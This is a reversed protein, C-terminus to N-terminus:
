RTLQSKIASMGALVKSFRQEILDDRYAPYSDTAMTATCEVARAQFYLRQSRASACNLTTDADTCLQCRLQAVSRRSLCRLIDNCHLQASTVSARVDCRHRELTSLEVQRQAILSQLSQLETRAQADECIGGKNLSAFLARAERDAHDVDDIADKAMKRLVKLSRLAQTIQQAPTAQEGSHNESLSAMNRNEAHLQTRRQRKRPPSPAGKALAQEIALSEVAPTVQMQEIDASKGHAPGEPSSVVQVDTSESQWGELQRLMSSTEKAQMSSVKWHCQQATLLPSRRKPLDQMVKVVTMFTCIMGHQRLQICSEPRVAANLASLDSERSQLEQKKSSVWSAAQQVCDKAQKLECTVDTLKATADRLEAQMGLPLDAM